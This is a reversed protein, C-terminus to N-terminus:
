RSVANSALCWMAGKSSMVPGKSRSASNSLCAIRLHKLWFLGLQHTCSFLLNQWSGESQRFPSCNLLLAPLDWIIIKPISPLSKKLHFVTPIQLQLTDGWTVDAVQLINFHLRHSTSFQLQLCVSPLYLQASLLVSSHPAYLEGIVDRMTNEWEQRSFSTGSGFPMGTETVKLGGKRYSPSLFFFFWSSDLQLSLHLKISAKATTM